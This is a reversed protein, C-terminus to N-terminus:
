YVALSLKIIFFILVQVSYSNELSFVSHEDSFVKFVSFCCFLM